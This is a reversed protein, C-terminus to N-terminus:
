RCALLNCQSLVKSLLPIKQCTGHLLYALYHTLALTRGLTVQLKLTLRIKLLIMRLVSHSIWFMWSVRQYMHFWEIKILICCYMSVINVEMPTKKEGEDVRRSCIQLVQVGHIDNYKHFPGELIRKGFESQVPIM